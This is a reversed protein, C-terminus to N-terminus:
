ADKCKGQWTYGCFGCTFNLYESNMDRRYKVTTSSFRGFVVTRGCKACCEPEDIVTIVKPKRRHVSINYAIIAIAALLTFFALVSLANM